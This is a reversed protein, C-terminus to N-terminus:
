AKSHQGWHSLGFPVQQLLTSDFPVESWVSGIAEPVDPNDGAFYHNWVFWQKAKLLGLEHRQKFLAGLSASLATSDLYHRNFEALKNKVSDLRAIFTDFDIKDEYLGEELQRSLYDEQKLYTNANASTGEYRLRNRTTDYRITLEEGPTLYLTEVNKGLQLRAFMARPVEFELLTSRASDLSTEAVRFNEMSIMDLTDLKVPLPLEPTSQITLKVTRTGPGSQCATILWPLLLGWLATRLPTRM